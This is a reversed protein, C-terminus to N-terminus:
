DPNGNWPTEAVDRVADRLEDTIANPFVEDVIKDFIYPHGPASIGKPDFEAKMRDLWVDYNQLAPAFVRVPTVLSYFFGQNGTEIIIRGGESVRWRMFRDELGPKHVVDDGRDMQAADPLAHMESYYLRGMNYAM